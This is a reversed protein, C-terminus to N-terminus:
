LKKHELSVSCAFKRSITEIFFSSITLFQLLYPTSGQCGNHLHPNGEYGQSCNCLYGPGNSATVCYSNSSVCAYDRPVKEGETPCSGNRIAWDSIVPVGRNARENIFGLHGVLNQRRFSYWGVEVLMAYFCPNFNWVSSQNMVFLAAFDTLNPCITIECCGQGTCPAGDFTSNTGQCYSYCGVLYLEPNNHMYGGILGLTNCGIVTFQNHTTSPIFPTGELNYGETKNDSMTTNSTFCNYSVPSYVPMEGHELSIDLAETSASPYGIMPRPSQSTHNCTVMFQSNLSTAACAAGIGFPYPISVNGCKGPCGPLSIPLGSSTAPMAIVPFIIFMLLVISEKM